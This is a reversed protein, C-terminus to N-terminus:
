KETELMEKTLDSWFKDTTQQCVQVVGNQPNTLPAWTLDLVREEQVYYGDLVPQKIQDAVHLSSLRSCASIPFICALVILSV